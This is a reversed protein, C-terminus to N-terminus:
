PFRTNGKEALAVSVDVVGIVIHIIVARKSAVKQDSPKVPQIHPRAAGDARDEIM